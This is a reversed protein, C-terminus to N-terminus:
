GRAEKRRRQVQAHFSEAIATLTERDQQDLEGLIAAVIRVDTAAGLTTTVDQVTFGAAEAAAARVMDLPVDIAKALKELTDARPVTKHEAKTALSYVITHSSFGGRRGLESWSLDLEDKRRRILRALANLPRYTKDSSASTPSSGSMGPLSSAKVQSAISLFAPAETDLDNTCTAATSM